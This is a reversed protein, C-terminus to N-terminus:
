AGTTTAQKELEEAFDVSNCFANKLWRLYRNTTKEDLHGLQDRLLLIEAKGAEVIWDPTVMAADANNKTRMAIQLRISKAIRLCAYYHRGLHPSWEDWPPNVKFGRRLTEGQIPRGDYESIFLRSEHQVQELRQKREETTKAANVYKLLSKSRVTNRYRMLEEALSLPIHIKRTPGVTRKSARKKNVVDTYKPGKAGYKLTVEVYDRFAIWKKRNENLYELDWQVCEERRIGSELCLKAMLSLTFGKKIKLAELWDDIQLETPITLSGAHVRVKGKRGKVLTSKYSKSNQGGGSSRYSQQYAVDFSERYGNRAAWDCFYTAESVRNNITSPALSKATTSWNANQMDRQYRELLDTSYEVKQWPTKAWICWELFDILWRAMTEISQETPETGGGQERTLAVGRARERLYRNAIREYKWGKGFIVPVHAVPHFGADELMKQVPQFLTYSM